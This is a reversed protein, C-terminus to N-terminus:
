LYQKNRTNPIKTHRARALRVPPQNIPVAALPPISEARYDIPWSRAVQQHRSRIFTGRLSPSDISSDSNVRHFLSSHFTNLSTSYLVVARADAASLLTCPAFRISKLRLVACRPFAIPLTQLPRSDPHGSVGSGSSVRLMGFGQRREPCLPTEQEKQWLKTEM